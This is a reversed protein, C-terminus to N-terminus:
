VVGLRSLANGKFVQCLVWVGLLVELAAGAGKM